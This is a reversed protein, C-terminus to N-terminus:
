ESKDQMFIIVAVCGIFLMTEFWSFGCTYLVRATGAGVIAWSLLQVINRIHKM